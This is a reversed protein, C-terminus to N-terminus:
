FIHICIHIGFLVLVVAHLLLVFYGFHEALPVFELKGARADVVDVHCIVGEGGLCQGPVQTPDFACGLDVVMRWKNGSGTPQQHQKQLEVVAECVSISKASRLMTYAENVVAMTKALKIKNVRQDKRTVVLLMEESDEASYVQGCIGLEEFQEWAVEATLLAEAPFSVPTPSTAAKGIAVEINSAYTGTSCVLLDDEGVEALVHFEHTTEGGINGSDARVQVAKLGLVDFIRSYAQCVQQYTCSAATADVDFTYMDKMTFERGRLLGFRPRLEDRYKRGIQYLRLPLRHAPLAGLSAV